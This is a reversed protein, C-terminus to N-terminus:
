LENAYFRRLPPAPSPVLYIRFQRRQSTFLLLLHAKMVLLCSRKVAWCPQALMLLTAAGHVSKQAPWKKKWLDTNHLFLVRRELLSKQARRSWRMGLHYHVGKIQEWSNNLIYSVELNLTSFGSSTM